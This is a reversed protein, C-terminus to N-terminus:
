SLAPKLANKQKIQIREIFLEVLLLNFVIGIWQSAEYNVQYPLKLHYFIVHLLRFTLVISVAGYSRMMWKIHEPIDKKRGARYGRITFIGALLGQVMFGIQTITGGKAYLALYIGTPVVIVLTSWTYLHGIVQHAIKTNHGIRVIFQFLPTFICITGALLHIYFLPLYLSLEKATSEGLIGYSTDYRFYQLANHVLLITLLTIFVWGIIQITKLVINKFLMYEFQLRIPEEEFYLQHVLM